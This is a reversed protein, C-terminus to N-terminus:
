KGFGQLFEKVAASGRKFLHQDKEKARGLERAVDRAVTTLANRLETKTSEARYTRGEHEVSLEARWIDGKEQNGVARELELYATGSGGGFFRDLTGVQEEAQRMIEPTPEYRTGKYRIDM